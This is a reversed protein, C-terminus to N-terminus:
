QGVRQNQLGHLFVGSGRERIGRKCSVVLIMFSAHKAVSILPLLPKTMLFSRIPTLTCTKSKALEAFQVCVQIVERRADHHVSPQQHRTRELVVPNREFESPKFLQKAFFRQSGIAQQPCTCELEIPSPKLGNARFSGKRCMLALQLSNHACARSSLLTTSSGM